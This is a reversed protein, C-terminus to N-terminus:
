VAKNYIVPMKNKWTHWTKDNVVLDSMLHAVNIRSTKGADFIASRVPSEHIDYDTVSKEDILSDPRVVVWEIAKQTRSLSHQLYGSADENDAHPPIFIRILKVIVAQRSSVQEGALKNQNGTTNMLIFKVPSGGKAIVNIAKCVNKVTDTVLRRPHGFMGKFTLNHGLCSIVARCDKLHNALEDSSLDVVSAQTVTLRNDQMIDFPFAQRMQSISRVIVRVNENKDLLQKVVLQGTAGSAGLVLTTM